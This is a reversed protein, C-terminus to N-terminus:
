RGEPSHAFSGRSLLGTLVVGSADGGPSDRGIEGPVQAQRFSILGCVFDM